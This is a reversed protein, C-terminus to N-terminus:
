VMEDRNILRAAARARVVRRQEPSMQTWDAIERLDRGCGTCVDSSDLACVKISPSEVSNTEPLQNM